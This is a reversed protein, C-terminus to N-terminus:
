PDDVLLEPAVAFAPTKIFDGSTDHYKLLLEVERRLATDGNCSRELIAARTNLPQEVAVDFIDTCNKWRESQM